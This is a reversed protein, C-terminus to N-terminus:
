DFLPLSPLSLAELWKWTTLLTEYMKPKRDRCYNCFLVATLNKKLNLFFFFPCDNTM